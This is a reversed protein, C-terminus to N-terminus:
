VEEYCRSLVSQVLRVSRLVTSRWKAFDTRPNAKLSWLNGQIEAMERYSSFEPHCSFAGDLNSCLNEIYEDLHNDAGQEYAERMPLLKFIKGRLSILYTESVNM